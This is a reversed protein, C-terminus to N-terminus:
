SALLAGAAELTRSGGSAAWPAGVEWGHETGLQAGTVGDNRMFILWILGLLAIGVVIWVWLQTRGKPVVDLNAM